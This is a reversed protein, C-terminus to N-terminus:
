EEGKKKKKGLSSDVVGQESKCVQDGDWSLCFLFVAVTYYFFLGKTVRAALLGICKYYQMSELSCIM